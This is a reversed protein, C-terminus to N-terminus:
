DLYTQEIVFWNTGFFGVGPRNLKGAFIKRMWLYGSCIYYLISSTLPKTLEKDHISTKNITLLLILCLTQPPEM